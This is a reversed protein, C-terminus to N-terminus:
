SLSLTVSLKSALQVEEGGGDHRCRLDWHLGAFSDTIFSSHYCYSFHPKLKVYNLLGSHLRFVWEALISLCVAGSQKLVVIENTWDLKPLALGTALGGIQAFFEVILCYVAFVLFELISLKFSISVLIACILM